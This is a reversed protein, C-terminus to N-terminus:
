KGWFESDPLYVIRHDSYCSELEKKSDYGHYYYTISTLKSNDLIQNWIHEDNSPSIGLLHAEGCISRFKDIPYQHMNLSPNNIKAEIIGFALREGADHSQKLCEIKKLDQESMDEYSNLINEVGFQGNEMVKMVKEKYTGSFGMLGNCYVHRMVNTVPNKEGKQEYHYGILTNPDYQDLLTEFDGHLYNVKKGSIIELTKDYNVTYIQDYGQLKSRLYDKYSPSITDAIKQILGENYIADLFQWCFGDHTDKIDKESDNYKIHFLRLIIFYDEMGVEDIKTSPSYRKQLITVLEKDEEKTCYQDYEGRLIRKLENYMGPLIDAIVDNSVTNNYLSMAYNKSKLNSLFRNIIAKNLYEEGGLEINLGNGVLITKM